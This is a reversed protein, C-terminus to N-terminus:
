FMREILIHTLLRIDLIVQTSGGVCDAPTQSFFAVDGKAYPYLELGRVKLDQGTLVPEPLRGVNRLAEIRDADIEEIVNIMGSRKAQDTHDCVVQDAYVIQRLEVKEAGKSSSTTQLHCNIFEDRSKTGVDHM